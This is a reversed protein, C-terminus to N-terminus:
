VGSSCRMELNYTGTGQMFYTWLFQRNWRHRNGSVPMRGEKRGQGAQEWTNWTELSPVVRHHVNGTLMHLTPPFLSFHPPGGPLCFIPKQLYRYM